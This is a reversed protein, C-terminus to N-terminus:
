NWMCDTMQNYIEAPIMGIPNTRKAKAYASNKEHNSPPSRGKIWSIRLALMPAALFNLPIMKEGTWIFTLSWCRMGLIYFYLRCNLSTCLPSSSNLVALPFASLYLPLMVLVPTLQHCSHTADFLPRSVTYKHIWRHNWDDIVFINGLSVLAMTISRIRSHFEKNFTKDRSLIFPSVTQEKLWNTSLTSLTERGQFPFFIRTSFERCEAALNTETSM